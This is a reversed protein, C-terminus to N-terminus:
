RGNMKASAIVQDESRLYIRFSILCCYCSVSADFLLKLTLKEVLLVEDAPFLYWYVFCINYPYYLHINALFGRIENDVTHLMM